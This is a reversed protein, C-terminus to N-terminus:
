HGRVFASIQAPHAADGTLSTVGLAVHATHQGSGHHTVYREILFAHAAHPFHIRPFGVFEGLPLVQVTRKESRGHGRDTFVLRPAHQWPLTDLLGYLRHQNEKVTFVYDAGRARLYRAHEAVTHLADATIVRGALDIGDLLRPFWTIESTGVTVQRQATVTGTDHTFASILHVGAGGVRPFTGRLSKGDVAIATPIATPITTPTRDPDPTDAPTHRNALWASIAGDVRDSDLARALRRVTAEDPAIHYGTRPDLRAGLMALIPQPADAAWEGIATFSRAGAAVAVAAIALIAALSHRM